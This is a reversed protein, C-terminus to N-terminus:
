LSLLEGRLRLGGGEVGGSLGRHIVCGEDYPACCDHDGSYSADDEIPPASSLRGCPLWWCLLTIFAGDVEFGDELLVGVEADVILLHNPEEGFMAALRERVLDPVAEADGPRAGPPHYAAEHGRSYDLLPLDPPLAEDADYLLVPPRLLLSVPTGLREKPNRM